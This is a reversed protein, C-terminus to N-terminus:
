HTAPAPPASIVGCVIRAGSGGTPQTSQDDAGAHIVVSSGDADLLAARGGAGSASILDSFLSTRGIGNADVPFSPLDGAEAGQAHLLGHSKHGPNLHGGASAFDPAACVGKEHIHIGHWSNPTLGSVEIRMLMGRPGEYFFARGVLKGTADKLDAVAAAALSSARAITQTPPAAPATAPPSQPAPDAALAGGSLALVAIFSAIATKVTFSGTEARSEKGGRVGFALLIRVAKRESEEYNGKVSSVV